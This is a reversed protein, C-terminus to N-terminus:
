KEKQCNNGGIKNTEEPGYIIDIGPLFNILHGSQDINFDDKVRDQVAQTQNIRKREQYNKEPMFETM